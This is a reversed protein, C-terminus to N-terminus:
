SAPEDLIIWELPHDIFYALVRKTRPDGDPFTFRCGIELGIRFLEIEHDVHWVDLWNLLFLVASDSQAQAVITSM